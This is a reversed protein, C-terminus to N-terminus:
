GATLTVRVAKTEDVLAAVYYKRAFITNLRINAATESRNDKGVNEVETGQKVFLKVAEPRAVVITKETANKKAYLNMGAVTGVYGDRAFAEVYQLTDKLEKRVAALDKPHVIAFTMEAPNDGEENILAQADVLGDYISVSGNATQTTKIWEGYVDANMKDFLGAAQKQIGTEIATPDTYLEEDYYEFRNQATKIDYTAPTYSAVISKTNGEGMALVETGDTATYTNVKIQMGPQGELANDITVFPQLDLRSAVLEEIENELVFNSYITNKPDAM